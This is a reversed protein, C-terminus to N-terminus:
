RRARSIESVVVIPLAEVDGVDEVVDVVTLAEVAVGEVVDEVAAEVTLVAEVAAGVEVDEVMGAILSPHLTTWVSPVVQL